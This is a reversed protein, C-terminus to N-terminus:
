NIQEIGSIDIKPFVVVKLRTGNILFRPTVGSIM